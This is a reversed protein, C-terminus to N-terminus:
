EHLAKLAQVLLSDEGNRQYDDLLFHIGIRTIENEVTRIGRDEFDRVIHRVMQKEEVTFRHTAAEKGIKRVERRILTIVADDYRPTMTDHHRPIVTDGVKRVDEKRPDGVGDQFAVPPMTKQDVVRGSILPTKPNGDQSPLPSAQKPTGGLLVGYRSM